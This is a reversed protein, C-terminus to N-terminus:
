TQSDTCDRHHAYERKHTVLGMLLLCCPALVVSVSVVGSLVTEADSWASFQDPDSTIVSIRFVQQAPFRDAAPTVLILNCHITAREGCLGKITQGPRAM